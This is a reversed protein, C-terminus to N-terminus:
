FSETIWQPDNDIWIDIEPMVEKKAKYECYVVSEILDPVYEIPTDMGRSTTIWVKHGYREALKLFDDWFRGDATFTGDWDLGIKM